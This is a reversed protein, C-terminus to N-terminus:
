QENRVVRVIVSSDCCDIEEFNTNKEYTINMVGNFFRLLEGAM